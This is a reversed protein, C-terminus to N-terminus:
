WPEPSGGPGEYVGLHIGLHVRHPQNKPVRPSFPGEHGEISWIPLKKVYVKQYFGFKFKCGPKLDIRSKTGTYYGLSFTHPM